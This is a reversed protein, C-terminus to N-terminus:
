GIDTVSGTTIIRLIELSLEEALKLTTKDPSYMWILNNIELKLREGKIPNENISDETDPWGLNEENM